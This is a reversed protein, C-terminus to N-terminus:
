SGNLRRCVLFAFRDSTGLRRHRQARLPQSKMAATDLFRAADPPFPLSPLLEFEAAAIAATGCGAVGDLASTRAGAASLDAAGSPFGASV